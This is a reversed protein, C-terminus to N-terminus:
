ANCEMLLVTTGQGRIGEITNMNKLVRTPALGISFEDLLLLKPTTMPDRGIALM